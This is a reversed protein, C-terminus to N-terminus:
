TLPFPKEVSHLVNGDMIFAFIFLYNCKLLKNM